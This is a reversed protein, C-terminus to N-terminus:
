RGPRHRLRDLWHDAMGWLRERAREYWPRHEWALPDCKASHHFDQEFMARAEDAFGADAVEQNAELNWRLNWRDLNSSGVSVMNDCLAVKAHLFRPQYEFIQVDSRLLGPYYRRGAHRVAPHDTREGPLLLRVDVGRRAARRLARRLKRSPLFYATAIWVRERAGLVRGIVSRSIPQPGFASTAAVRGWQGGAEAARPAPPLAARQGTCEAWATRFLEQWDQLVPGRIQIVTERWSTAPSHPSHFKDTIGLGGVFATEGDVLLLKRHDRFLNALWKRYHLKNYFALTVGGGSLRERDGRSLGRAGFDDLLLLVRADRAAAGTLAAIFRDAVTGSEFLYFEALVYRRAAKISELMRPFFAIGDILLEFRNGRRWPFDPPRRGGIM